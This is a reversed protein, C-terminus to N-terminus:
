IDFRFLNYVVSCDMTGFGVIEYRSLSAFDFKCPCSPHKEMQEEEKKEGRIM